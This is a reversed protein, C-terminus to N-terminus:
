ACTGPEGHRPPCIWAVSPADTPRFRLDQFANRDWRDRAPRPMPDTVPGDAAKYRLPQVPNPM